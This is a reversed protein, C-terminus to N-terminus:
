VKGGQIVGFMPGTPIPDSLLSEPSKLHAQVVGVAQGHPDDGSCDEVDIYHLGQKHPYYVRVNM